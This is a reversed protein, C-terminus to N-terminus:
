PTLELDLARAETAPERGLDPRTRFAVLPHSERLPKEREGGRRGGERELFRHFIDQTLISLINKYIHDVKETCRADRMSQNRKGRSLTKLRSDPESVGGRREDVTLGM